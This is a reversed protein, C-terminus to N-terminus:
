VGFASVLSGSASGSAARGCITTAVRGAMVKQFFPGAASVFAGAESWESILEGMAAELAAPPPKGAEYDTDNAIRILMLFQM